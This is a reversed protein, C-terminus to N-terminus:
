REAWGRLRGAVCSLRDGWGDVWDAVASATNRLFADLRNSPM